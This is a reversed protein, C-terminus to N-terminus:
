FDKRPDKFGANPLMTLLVFGQNMEGSFMALDNQMQIAMFHCLHRITM